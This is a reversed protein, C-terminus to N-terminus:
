RGDGEKTENAPIQSYSLADAAEVNLMTTDAVEPKVEKKDEQETLASESVTSDSVTEPSPTDATGACGQLLFATSLAVTIMVSLVSKKM